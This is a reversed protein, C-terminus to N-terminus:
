RRSEPGIAPALLTPHEAIYIRFWPAYSSADAEIERRISRIPQWRTEMVERPDTGALSIGREASAHFCHVLENEYLAGVKARYRITGIEALPLTLGLEEALRRRACTAVDEGWRPHSCCANAWLGGSHYKGFARRQLLMADGDTVFISVALHPVDRVHADLKEIRYRGGNEDLATIYEPEQMTGASNM